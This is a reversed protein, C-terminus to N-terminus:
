KMYKHQLHNQKVYLNTMKLIIILYKNYIFQQTDYSSYLVSPSLWIIIIVTINRNEEIRINILVSVYKYLFMVCCITAKGMYEVRDACIVGEWGVSFFSYSLDDLNNLQFM